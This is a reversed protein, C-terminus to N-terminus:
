SWRDLMLRLEDRHKSEDAILDDMDVALGYEGLEEAQSRREVYRTITAEEDELANQLMQRADDSFRVPANKTAPTGGLSVVKDALLQAHTLEDAIEAEFFARLERRYPGRVASAYTRYQIVAQYERALDENLADILQQKPIAM